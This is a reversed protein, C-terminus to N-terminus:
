YRGYDHAAQYMAVVNEVPSNDQISHTIGDDEDTKHAIPVKEVYHFPLKGNLRQETLVELMEKDAEPSVLQGRYMKELMDAIEGAEIRRFCEVMIPIKIVSAAMTPLDEQVSLTENTILKKYYFSMKGSLKELRATIDNKTMLIGNRGLAYM